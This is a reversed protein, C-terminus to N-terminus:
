IVGSDARKWWRWCRIRICRVSRSGNRSSRLCYDWLICNKETIKQWMFGLPHMAKGLDQQLVAGLAYGSADTNIVFPLEMDPLAMTPASELGKKLAVFAEEEKPGWRFEVDDHTLDTLPGAVESFRKMFKRYYGALGLFARVES